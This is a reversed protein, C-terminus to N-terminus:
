RVLAEQIVQDVTEVPIFHIDNKVIEPVEDLDKVNNKPIIVTSIGSRHAALSKERLGGIPLVNGRLTVEGTMALNAHVPMRTIASVLATTLTVGASPGDKPVAGEPCHIHIDHKDFFAPDIKFEVAKSKVYDLAIETSEKMVDGLQGTVILKGKGDFYTVEVPLINRIVLSTDLPKKLLQGFTWSGRKGAHFFDFAHSKLRRKGLAM